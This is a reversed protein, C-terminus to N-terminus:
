NATTLPKDCGDMSLYRASQKAIGFGLNVGFTSLDLLAGIGSAVSSVLRRGSSGTAENKAAEKM